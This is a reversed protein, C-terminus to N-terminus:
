SSVKITLPPKLFFEANEWDSHDIKFYARFECEFSTVNKPTMIVPYFRVDNRLNDGKYMFWRCFPNSMGFADVVQTKLEYKFSVIFHVDLEAEAAASVSVPVGAGPIPIAPFGFEAKGNVGIDAKGGLELIKDVQPGPLMSYTSAQNDHYRIEFKLAQFTEGGAPSIFVGCPMMFFNNKRSRAKIIGELPTGQAEAVDILNTLVPQSQYGFESKLNEIAPARDKAWVSKLWDIVGREGGKQFQAPVAGALKKMDEVSFGKNETDVQLDAQFNFDEKGPPALIM